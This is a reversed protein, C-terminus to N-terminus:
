CWGHDNNTKMAMPMALVGSSVVNCSGNVGNVDHGSVLAETATEVVM